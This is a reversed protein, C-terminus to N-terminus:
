QALDLNQLTGVGGNEYLFIGTKRIRANPENTRSNNLSFETAVSGLCLAGVGKDKLKCLQQTGDENLFCITLKDFIDDAEDIWGNHDEDYASLDAFGDGSTTGFLESGDGIIGDGNRDFAIYGSGGSLLKIEEREGDSDLDFRVTVDSVQAVDSDLNIVLPDTFNPIVTTRSEEYYESFSRSMYVNLDFDLKRGDATVVTGRTSFTTDEEESYFSSYTTEGSSYMEQVSLTSNGSEEYMIDDSSNRGFLLMLLYRLCRVRIRELSDREAKESFADSSAYAKMKNFVNDFDTKASLERSGSQLVANGEMKTGKAEMSVSTYTRASEMGISSSRIIM